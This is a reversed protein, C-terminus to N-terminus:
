KRKPFVRITLIEQNSKRKLLDCPLLERKMIREIKRFHISKQYQLAISKLIAIKLRSKSNCSMNAGKQPESSKSSTGFVRNM